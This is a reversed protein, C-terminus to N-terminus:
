NGWPMHLRGLGPVLGMDEANAPPNRVVTGGPFDWSVSNNAELDKGYHLCFANTTALRSSPGWNIRAKQCKYGM